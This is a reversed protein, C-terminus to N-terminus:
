EALYQCYEKLNLLFFDKVPALDFSPRLLAQLVGSGLLGVNALRFKNDVAV